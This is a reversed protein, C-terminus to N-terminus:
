LEYKKLLTNLTNVTNKKGGGHSLRSVYRVWELHRFIRKIHDLAQSLLVVYREYADLNEDTAKKM